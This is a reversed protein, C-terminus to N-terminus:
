KGNAQHLWPEKLTVFMDRHSRKLFVETAIRLIDIDTEIEAIGQVVDMVDEISCGPKDYSKSTM